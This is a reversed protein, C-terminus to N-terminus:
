LWGEPHHHSSIWIETKKFFDIIQKSEAWFLNIMLSILLTGDKLLPVTENQLFLGNTLTADELKRRQSSKLFSSTIM